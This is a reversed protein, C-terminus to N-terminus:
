SSYGCWPSYFFSIISSYALIVPERHTSPLDGDKKEETDAAAARKDEDHFVEEASVMERKQQSKDMAVPKEKDGTDVPREREKVSSKHEGDEAQAYNADRDTVAQFKAVAATADKELGHDDDAREREELSSNQAIDRQGAESDVVHRETEAAVDGADMTADEQEEDKSTGNGKMSDKKRSIDVACPMGAMHWKVGDESKATDVVDTDEEIQQRDGTVGGIKAEERYGGGKRADPRSVPKVNGLVDSGVKQQQRVALRQQLDDEFVAGKEARGRETLQESETSQEGSVAADAINQVADRFEVDGKWAGGEEPVTKKPGTQVEDAVEKADYEGLSTKVDTPVMANADTRPEVAQPARHKWGAADKVSGDGVDDKRSGGNEDDAVTKAEVRFIDTLQQQCIVNAAGDNQASDSSREDDERHVPKIEVPKTDILQQTTQSDQPEVFERAAALTFEIQTLEDLAIRHQQVSGPQMLDDQAVQNALPVGRGGTDGVDDVSETKDSVTSDVPKLVNNAAAILVVPSLVNQSTVASSVRDMSPLHESSVEASAPVQPHQRDQAVPLAESVAPVSKTAPTAANFAPQGDTEPTWEDEGVIPTKLLTMEDGAPARQSEDVFPLEAGTKNAPLVRSEDVAPLRYSKDTVFVKSPEPSVVVPNVGAAKDITRLSQDGTEFNEAEAEWENGASADGPASTRNLLEDVPQQSSTAIDETSSFRDAHVRFVDRGEVVAAANSDSSAETIKFADGETSVGDRVDKTADSPGGVGFIQSESITHVDPGAARASDKTELSASTAALQNSVAVPQSGLVPQSSVAMQKLPIVEGTHINVVNGHRADLVGCALAAAVAMAKGTAPDIVLSHPDILGGEVAEELAFYLGNTPDFFMGNAEDYLGINIATAISMPRPVLIGRRLAETLPINEATSTDHVLSTTSSM